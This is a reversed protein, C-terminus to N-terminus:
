VSAMTAALEQLEQAGDFCGNWTIEVDMQHHVVVAGVLRQGDAPPKRTMGSELDM